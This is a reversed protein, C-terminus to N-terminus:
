QFRTSLVLANNLLFWSALVAITANLALKIGPASGPVDCWEGLEDISAQGPLGVFLVIKRHDLPDYLLREVGALDLRNCLPALRPSTVAM